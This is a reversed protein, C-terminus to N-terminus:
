RSLVLPRVFYGTELRVMLYYTGAPLHSLDFEETMRQGRISKTFFQRNGADCLTLSVQESRVLALAIQVTGSTPNPALVFQEVSAPLATSVVTVQAGPRYACGNASTLLCEYFGSQVPVFTAANAGAIPQGDLLWQYEPWAGASIRLTDNQYLVALGAPPLEASIGIGASAPLNCNRYQYQVTYTGEASVALQSGTAGNLSVGNRYWQFSFGPLYNTAQLHITDGPCLVAPGAPQVSPIFAAGLEEITIEASSTSTCVLDAYKVHYTGPIQVALRQDPTGPVPTGDKFWKYEFGVPAATAELWVTDSNCLLVANPLPATWSVASLVPAPVQVVGRVEFTDRRICGRADTAQVSYAGPDLYVITSDTQGNNWTFSFPPLGGSISLDIIGNLAGTCTADTVAGSIQFPSCLEKIKYIAGQSLAAVYLEGLRDEGLTSYQNNALDAIQTTSFTSDPMRRTAWWRGSCYDTFLYAGYLDAYQNGRYLFGGTVSCGISNNDYDFIPGTYGSAPQCNATNHPLTGEYCRWGYNRGGTGTPEFDIEERTVQGVDGIWLDGTLRDFSFRWPNRWGWSWIEPRFASDNVFPNDAPIAYSLGPASGNIDIRLIKGLFTNKNQGFNQPDGGSGGDGLSIYLYGDPGFKLCGGNHNNFPQDQTFLIVESDPDAENPNGAKASFRSVRTDGDTERTYYVFFFGTQSYNPPFALGLLGQENGTSRVRADINLFPNPLRNGLSDLLWIYGAQEVIFLRNDGCHAIDVPRTFGSAYANLEIKPQAYAPAALAILGGLFLYLRQKSM